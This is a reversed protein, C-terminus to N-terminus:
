NGLEEGTLKSLKLIETVLENTVNPPIMDILEDPCVSYNRGDIAKSIPKYTIPNGTQPHILNRIGKIGFRLVNINQEKLNLTTKARGTEPERPNMEFTTILDDLKAKLRHSLIGLEWVTPNEKDTEFKSVYEITASIDIGKM